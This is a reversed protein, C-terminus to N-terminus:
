SCRIRKATPFDPQKYLGDANILAPMTCSVSLCERWGRTSRRGALNVPYVPFASPSPATTGMQTGSRVMRPLQWEDPPRAASRRSMTDLRSIGEMWSDEEGSDDELDLPARRRELSLGSGSGPSSSVEPRLSVRIIEEDGDANYRRRVRYSRSDTFDDDDDTVDVVRRHSRVRALATAARAHVNAPSYSEVEFDDLVTGTSASMPVSTGTDRLAGRNGTPGITRLPPSLPGDTVRERRNSWTVRASPDDRPNTVSASPSTASWSTPVSQRLYRARVVGEPPRRPRGPADSESARPIQSSPVQPPDRLVRTSFRPSATATPITPTPDHEEGRIITPNSDVGRTSLLRAPQTTASVPVSPRLANLRANRDNIWSRLSEAQETIRAGEQQIEQALRTIRATINSPLVRSPPRGGTNEYNLPSAVPRPRDGTTRASASISAPTLTPTDAVSNNNSSAATRAAVLIGLSTESENGDQPRILSTPRDFIRLAGRTPRTRGDFRRPVGMNSVAQATGAPAVEPSSSSADPYLPQYPAPNYPDTSPPPSRSRTREVTVGRSHREQAYQAIARRLEDFEGVRERFSQTM